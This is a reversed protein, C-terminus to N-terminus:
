GFYVSIAAWSGSAEPVTGEAKLTLNDVIKILRKPRWLRSALPPQKRLRRIDGLQANKLETTAWYM